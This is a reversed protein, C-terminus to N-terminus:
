HENVDVILHDTVQALPNVISQYSFSFAFFMTPGLLLSIFILQHKATCLMLLILLASTTIQQGTDPTQTTGHTQFTDLGTFVFIPTV